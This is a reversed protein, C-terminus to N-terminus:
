SRSVSLREAVEEKRRRSIPVTSNDKLVLTGEKKFKLVYDLNVLHSRHVRLFNDHICLLDDYEKLTKSSLFTKNEALIFRTYNLDAECRIIKDVELFIVGEYTTIALNKEKNSFFNALQKGYVERRNQQHQFRDIADKLETPNIPKLLYDLANYRIARIAYHNYATTFIVNCNVEPSAALLDFGSMVPMEIDLFLLDPKFDNLKALGEESGLATELMFQGPFNREMTVKLLNTAKSEDDIILAKIM